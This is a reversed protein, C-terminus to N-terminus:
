SVQYFVGTLYGPGSVPFVQGVVRSRPSNSYRLIVLPPSITLDIDIIMDIDRIM